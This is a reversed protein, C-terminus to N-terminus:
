SNNNEDIIGDHTHGHHIKIYYVYFLISAAIFWISSWIILALPERDIIARVAYVSIIVYPLETLFTAAFYKIFNYKAIGLVYGPIESPLVFRSMIILGFGSNTEFLLKRYYDIKKPDIIKSVIPYGAYRGVLYSFISGLLWGALLLISTYFNGWVAAAIPVLWISSFSMLMVSMVSLLLFVFISLIPYIDIYTKFFSVLDFFSNRLIASGWFILAIFFVSVLIILLKKNIFKLM